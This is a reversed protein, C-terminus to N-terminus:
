SKVTISMLFLRAFNPLNRQLSGEERIPNNLEYPVGPEMVHGMARRRRFASRRAHAKVAM